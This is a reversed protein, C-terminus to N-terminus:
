NKQKRSAVKKKMKNTQKCEKAPSSKYCTGQEKLCIACRTDSCWQCFRCDPCPHKYYTKDDFVM